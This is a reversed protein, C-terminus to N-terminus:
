KEGTLIDTVARTLNVGWFKGATTLNMYKGDFEVLKAQLWNELYPALKAKFDANIAFIEETNLYGKEMQETIKNSLALHSNPTSLSDPSFIGININEIYRQAAPMRYYSWGNISGGAGAGIGLCGAKRKVWPNYINRERSTKGYHNLSLQHWHNKTLYEYASKYFEGQDSIKAADPMSGALISKKLPSNEFVNLQYTDLGDVGALEAIKLDELFMEVSQAPLGYILDIIIAARNYSALNALIELVKKSESVRGLSKRIKTNFSQVGISLRNFGAQIIDKGRTGEFDHIRGEITIECDNALNLYKHFSEILLSLYQPEIASPTGGGLYVAQMPTEKVYAYQSVLEIEKILANVYKSGEEKTVKSGAFGCFSCRYQCYPIHIYTVAGSSPNQLLEKYKTFIEEKAVASRQALAMGILRGKYAYRLVDKSVDVLYVNSASVM